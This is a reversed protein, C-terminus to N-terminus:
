CIMPHSPTGPAVQQKLEEWYVDREAMSVYGTAAVFAVFQANTVETVDMYFGDVRVRHVPSEDGRVLPDISGMAFEGGPIWVMGSPAVTMEGVAEGGTTADRQSLDVLRGARGSVSCCSASEQQRAAVPLPGVSGGVMAIVMMCWHYGSLNVRQMGTARGPINFEHNM